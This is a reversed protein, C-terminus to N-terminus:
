DLKIEIGNELIEKAFWTQPNDADFTVLDIPLLQNEPSLGDRFKRSLIASPKHKKDAINGIEGSVAIDLDSNASVKSSLKSASGFVFLRINRDPWADRISQFGQHACDLLFQRRQEPKVFASCFEKYTKISGVKWVSV